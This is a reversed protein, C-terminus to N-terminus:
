SREMRHDSIVSLQGGGGQGDSYARKSRDNEGCLYCPLPQSLMTHERTAPSASGAESWSELDLKSLPYISLHIKGASLLRPPPTNSFLLDLPM